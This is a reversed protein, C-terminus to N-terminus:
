SQAQVTEIPAKLAAQLGFLSGSVTLSTGQNSERGRM